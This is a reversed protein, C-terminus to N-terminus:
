CKTRKGTERQDGQQVLEADEVITSVQELRSGNLIINCTKGNFTVAPIPQV